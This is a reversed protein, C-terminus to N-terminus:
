LQINRYKFTENDFNIFLKELEFNTKSINNFKILPKM